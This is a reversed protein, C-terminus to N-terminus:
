DEISTRLLSRLFFYRVFNMASILSLNPVTGVKNKGRDTIIDRSIEVPRWGGILPPM